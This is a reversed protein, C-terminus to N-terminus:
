LNAKGCRRKREFVGLPALMPKRVISAPPHEQDQVPVQESKRTSSVQRLQPLRVRLELPEPDVRQDHRELPRALCDLIPDLRGDGPRHQGVGLSPQVDGVAHLAGKPTVQPAHRRHTGIRSFSPLSMKGANGTGVRPLLSAVDQDVRSPDDPKVM